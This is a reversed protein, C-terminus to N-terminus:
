MQLQISFIYSYVYSINKRIYINLPFVCVCVTHLAFEQITKKALSLSSPSAPSSLKKWIRHTQPKWFGVLKLITFSTLIGQKESTIMCGLWWKVLHNSGQPTNTEPIQQECQMELVGPMEKQSGPTKTKVDRIFAIQPTASPKNDRNWWADCM